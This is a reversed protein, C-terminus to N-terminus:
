IALFAICAIALAVVWSAPETVAVIVPDDRVQGRHALLWMHMVWYLMLPCVLWLLRPSTYFRTVQSSTLYLAFVLISMTGAVIGFAGLWDSDAVTYVRSTAAPGERASALLRLDSYRKLMALSAFLFACLAILWESVEVRTAIGGAMVRITYFSSLVLVDIIPRRKLAASYLSTLTEYAAVSAAFPWSVFVAVGLAILSLAIGTALAVRPAILGAAVPRNRKSVHQRDAELDFYDNILYTGSAAFCFAGFAILGSTLRPVDNLHHSLALPAFVLANKTWDLPRLARLIQRSV